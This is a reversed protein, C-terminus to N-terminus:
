ALVTLRSTALRFISICYERFLILSISSITKCVPPLLGFREASPLLGNSSAAARGGSLRDTAAFISALRPTLSRAREHWLAM